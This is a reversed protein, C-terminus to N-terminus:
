KIMTKYFDYEIQFEDFKFPKSVTVYWKFGVTMYWIQLSSAIKM